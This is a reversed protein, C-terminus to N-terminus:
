FGVDKFDWFRVSIVYMRAFNRAYFDNLTVHVTNDKTEWWVHAKLSFRTHVYIHVTRGSNQKEHNLRGYNM